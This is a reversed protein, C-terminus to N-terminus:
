RRNRAPGSGSGQGQSAKKQEAWERLAMKAPDEFAGAGQLEELPVPALVESSLDEIRVEVPEDDDFEGAVIGAVVIEAGRINARHEHWESAKALILRDRGEPHRSLGDPARHLLGVGPRHLLKSGGQLLESNWRYHKAEIRELPLSELRAINAHDTHIVAPIRGLHKVM